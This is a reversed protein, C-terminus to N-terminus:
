GQQEEYKVLDLLTGARLRHIYDEIIRWSTLLFSFPLIMEVKAKVLHLTPSIEPFELGEKITDWCVFVFFINFGIWVLDSLVRFFLRVPLSMPTFQATIRVHAGRKVALAAAFFVAWIFSYRSLEETWAFSSGTFWRWVTQTTLAFIMLGVFFTCVIEEFNDYLARLIRM